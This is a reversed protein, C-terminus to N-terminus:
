RFGICSATVGHGIADTRTRRGLKESIAAERSIRGSIDQHVNSMRAADIQRIMAFNSDASMAM